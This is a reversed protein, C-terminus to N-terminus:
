TITIRQFPQGACWARWGDFVFFDVNRYINGARGRVGPVIMGDFGAARVFDSLVQSFAYDPRGFSSGIRSQEASDFASALITPLNAASLDAINLNDLPVAFEQVCAPTGPAVFQRMEASVGVISDALYLV